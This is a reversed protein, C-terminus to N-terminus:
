RSLSVPLSQAATQRTAVFLRPPPWAAARSLRARGITRAFVETTPRREASGAQNLFRGHIRANPPDSEKNGKNEETQIKEGRNSKSVIKPRKRGATFRTEGARSWRTLRAQIISTTRKLQISRSTTNSM